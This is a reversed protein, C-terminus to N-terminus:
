FRYRLKVGYTRPEGPARADFVSVVGMYPVQYKRNTLNNVFASLDFGSGMVGNWDASLNMLDQKEIIQARNYAVGAPIPTGDQAVELAFDDSYDYADQHTYTLALRIDGVDRDVPAIFTGTISYSNRPARPFRQRSLDDGNPSIYKKFRARTYAYFGSLEFMPAPRFLVELEIGKIQAQAANTTVTVPPALGQALIRQLGKYEALYAALNTRLFMGGVTWDAKAGLEFDDVLEPEFVDSLTAESNGRASFGGSRYGHRHALYFLMGQRPQYQGSINYTVEKFLKSGTFACQDIPPRTEPTAPNDDLDLTFRCSLGATSVAPIFARNLTTVERKDWNQRIGATLSLQDTFKYTGQFFAAYSTNTPKVWTNSYRPAFALISNPEILGPDTQGTGSLAGTTLAQDSSKERFYFGGLIFDFSDFTGQLQLEESIQHQSVIREVPFLLDATGDLDEMSHVRLKRYGFINKLTLRDNLDVSTQNDVFFNRIRSFMDIGSATHRINRQAQAALASQFLPNLSFSVFGGTGGNDAHAAGLTTISEAGEWPNMALTVRLADENLHNIDEGTVDDYIYGKREMHQGAIRVAVKETFALNVMAETTFADYNGVMQSASAEFHDVPRQTRVLIAGGTTNRGFLTGQPGKAVEVSAIDFFAMNSGHPRPVAIDNVYLTVSPDAIGTLEQQSQGRIAFTPTSRGGGLSNAVVLGPVKGGMDALDGIGQRALTDGGLVSLALPVDQLREERRRATVIIDGPTAIGTQEPAVPQQAHLAQPLALALLATSFYLTSRHHVSSM